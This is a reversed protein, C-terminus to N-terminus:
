NCSVLETSDEENIVPRAIDYHLNKPIVTGDDDVDVSELTINFPLSEIYLDIAYLDLARGCEDNLRISFQMKEGQFILLIPKSSCPSYHITCFLVVSGVATGGYLGEGYAVCNQAANRNQELKEAANDGDGFTSSIRKIEYEQFQRAAECLHRLTHIWRQMDIDSFAILHFARTKKTKPDRAVAHFILVHLWHTFNGRM